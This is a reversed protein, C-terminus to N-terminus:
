HIFIQEKHGIRWLYFLRVFLIIVYTITVGLITINLDNYVIEYDGIFVTLRTLYHIIMFYSLWSFILVVFCQIVSELIANSILSKKTYGILRLKSLNSKMKQYLLLAYNISAFIFSIAIATLLINMLKIIQHMEGITRSFLDERDVVTILHKSYNILLEEELRQLHNESNILLTNYGIDKYDEYNTHHIFAINDNIKDFFGGIIFSEKNFNSNLKITILDGIEYGRSEHFMMPLLITPKTSNKLRQIAKESMELNFYHHIKEPDMSIVMSINQEEVLVNQFNFVTDIQKVDPLTEVETKLLGIPTSIDTMMIDFVYENEFRDIRATLHRNAHVILMMAVSIIFVIVTLLLYAKEHIMMQMYLSFKKKSSLIKSLLVFSMLLSVLLLVFIGVILPILFLKHNIKDLIYLVLTVFLCIGWLKTIFSSNSIFRVPKSAKVKQNLSEPKHHNIILMSVIASLSGVLLALLCEKIGLSYTYKSALALLAYRMFASTLFLSLAFGIVLFISLELLTLRIIQHKRYGLISLIAEEFRKSDFYLKFTTIMVLIIAVMIISIMLEFVITNKNVMQNIAEYNISEKILLEQYPSLEKLYSIVSESDKTELYVKNYLNSFVQDPYVDYSPDIEVIMTRIISTKGVFISQDRFLSQDPIIEVIRYTEKQSGIWLDISQHISLGNQEAFSKTIMVDSPGITLHIYNLNDVIARFDSLEGAFLKVYFEENNASVLMQTEFFPVYSIINEYRNKYQILQTISFFRANTNQDTEMTLDYPLYVSEQREIYYGKIVNRASFALILMVFLTTMSMIMILARM